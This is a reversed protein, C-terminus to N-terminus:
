NNKKNVTITIKENNLIYTNYFEILQKYTVTNLEIALIKRRDFLYTKEFIENYFNSFVELTSSFPQTLLSSYTEKIENFRNKNFNNLFNNNFEDFAQKIEDISKESQVLQSFYFKNNENVKRTRAIYGFQKKTRIDNYFDQSTAMHLLSLLIYNVPEFNGIYFRQEYYNNIDNHEININSLLKLQRQNRKESYFYLDLNDIDSQKYNGCIFIQKETNNFMNDVLNEINNILQEKINNNQIYNIQTQYDFANDYINLGLVYNNFFDYSNDHVINNLYELRDNILTNILNSDNEDYEFHQLYEIVENYFNTFNNNYSKIYIKFGSNLDDSNISCSYSIQRESFFRLRLKYNIYSLLIRYLTHEEITDLLLKNTMWTYSYVIPENFRCLSCGFKKIGDTENILIPINDENDQNFIPEDNLINNNIDIEYNIEQPQIFLNDINILGYKFGYFEDTILRDVLLDKVNDKNNSSLIIKCQFSKLIIIIKDYEEKNFESAVESGIYIRDNKYEHMNNSLKIALSESDTKKGFNFNIYDKKQEYNYIEEWNFIELQTVFYRFYSDVQIWDDFNNLEFNITMISKNNDYDVSMDKILGMKVLNTVFSNENTYTILHSIVYPTHTNHYDNIKNIEFIYTLEKTDQETLFFYNNNDEFNFYPNNYKIEVSKNPINSFSNILYEECIDLDLNSVVSITINSSRYYKNYFQIMADRVNEKNLTELSGTGFKHIESNNDSLMDILHFFRWTDSNINKMHESHIANIERNVCDPDFLPDIFFRSFIDFVQEIKNNLVSLFYVTNNTDTYANSYGGNNNLLNDLLDEKQYKESGLFLMHELFHAMGQFEKPDKLSGVGVNVIIYSREITNDQICCYKINNNKITNYRFNRIENKPTIINYM